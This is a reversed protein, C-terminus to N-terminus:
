IRATLQEGKYEIDALEFVNNVKNKFSSEHHYREHFRKYGHIVSSHDINNFIQCIISLSYGFKLKLAAYYIYRADVFDVNRKKSMLDEESVQCEQCIISLIQAKSIKSSKTLKINTKNQMIEKYFIGIFSYPSIIKTKDMM